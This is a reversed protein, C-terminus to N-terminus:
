RLPILHSARISLSASGTDAGVSILYHPKLDLLAFRWDAADDDIETDFEVRISPADLHFWFKDLPISLGLGRAKIYSEKLTWYTFFKKLQQEAPCESLKRVEPAAFYREALSAIDQRRNLREADVGVRPHVASVACVILGRTNALNFHIPHSLPPDVLHPKGYDDAEFRWTKPEIDAYQSLVTRVLARTAIFMRRDRRFRLRALREREDSALLEVQQAILHDTDGLEYQYFWLDIRGPTADLCEPRFITPIRNSSDLLRLIGM